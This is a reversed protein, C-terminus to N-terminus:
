DLVDPHMSYPLVNGRRAPCGKHARFHEFHARQGTTGEKHARVHGHCEPVDNEARFARTKLADSLSIPEWRGGRKVECRRDEDDKMEDSKGRSWCGAPGPAWPVGALRRVVALVEGAGLVRGDGRGPWASPWAATARAPRGRRRVASHSVLKERRRTQLGRGRSVDGSWAQPVREIGRDVFHAYATRARWQITAPRRRLLWSFWTLM